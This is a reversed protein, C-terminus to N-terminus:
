VNNLWLQIFRGIADPATQPLLHRGDVTAVTQHPLRSALKRGRKVLFYGPRGLILLKPIPTEKLWDYCEHMIHSARPPDGGLPINAIAAMHALRAEGPPGIARHYADILDSSLPGQVFEKLADDLFEDTTLFYDDMDGSRARKVAERLWPQAEAWAMPRVVGDAYSIARVRDEHLRAWELAVITNLGHSVLTLDDELGLADLCADLYAVHTDWDYYSLDAGPIRDSAGFGILDIAITQATSSIQPMVNEWIDMSGIGGGVLVVPRGRGEARYAM